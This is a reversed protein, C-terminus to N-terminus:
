LNLKKILTHQKDRDSIEVVETPWKINLTPDNWRIGSEFAPNYFESVLYYVESHDRLTLFGHAFDKPVYIMKRNEESLEIGFWKLYTKSDPRLDVIVDCVAGKTCRVIKTEQFPSKQFHLGRLTGKKISYSINSQSINCDLGMSQMEKECWLRGFFGRDDIIRNVEIVFAGEIYTQNFIM